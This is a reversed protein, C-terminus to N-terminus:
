RDAAPGVSAPVADIPPFRSADISPFLRLANGYYLKALVTDPLDLGYMKWFAHRRRYYDFYEDDTELVRFYCHYESPEWADKGFFVRDQYRELFRAAQRPQRGLEALVAGIETTVNPLEDLLSGLRELDNAMWGMHANIFTTGPHSRFLNWQEGMVAEWSPVLAPDRYREPKQKLELWRENHEDRPEWFSAPEGSHILVPVGLEGCREWVPALRPDDVPIREGAADVATLGLNKYIKLGVCGAEVDAEVQDATAAGWGPEDIGEFSINTFILFRGPYRAAAELCQALYEPGQRWGMGSLNVMVAMNLADMDAVLQDLDSTPMNWIHNHVDVFPFRAATVPTEPVVLTSEPQYAEWDMSQAAGSAAWLAVAALARLRPARRRVPGAPIRLSASRRSPTVTAPM